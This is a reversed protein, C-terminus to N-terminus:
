DRPIPGADFDLLRRMEEKIGAINAALVEKTLLQREASKRQSRWDLGPRAAAVAIPHHGLLQFRECPLLPSSAASM